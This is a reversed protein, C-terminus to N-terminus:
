AGLAAISGQAIVREYVARLRRRAAAVQERLAEPGQGPLALEAVDALERPLREIPRGAVWRACAEVRRLWHYDALVEAGAAEGSVAALMSQVSPLAPFARAGRELLGGGALFDVDMLGGTGTKFATAGDDGRAREEIVRARLEALEKWPAVSHPIVHARVARLREAAALTAGAIPRARLMALHEWTAADRTQYREYGEFSAVLMGQQGSPRLRTDVEYAVGAGTMTTLYAILRQGLRSARDIEVAGYLFILDLDSHYTFERGAIKGMGLVVLPVQERGSRALRLAERTISEALQSLSLSAEEFDIRGGLDLCAVACTEERRLLRLADLAHELPLQRDLLADAELARRRARLEEPSQACLRAFLRPRNALTRAAERDATLLRALGPLASEPPLRADEFLRSDALADLRQALPAALATKAVAQELALRLPNM